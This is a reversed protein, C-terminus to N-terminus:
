SVFVILHHLEVSVPFLVNSDNDKFLYANDNISDVKSISFELGTITEYDIYILKVHPNSINSTDLETVKFIGVLDSSNITTSNYM